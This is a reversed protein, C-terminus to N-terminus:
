KIQIRNKIDEKIKYMNFSPDAEPDGYQKKMDLEDAEDDEGYAQKTTKNYTNGKSPIYGRFEKGDWYIIFYVPYQWDGGAMCALYVLGNDLEKLGYEDEFDMSPKYEFNEYDYEVKKLDKVLKCPFGSYLLNALLDDIAYNRLSSSFYSKNIMEALTLSEFESPDCLDSRQQFRSAINKLDTYDKQAYKDHKSYDALMEAFKQKFEEKTIAVSYRPM